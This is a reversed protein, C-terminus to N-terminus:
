SINLAFVFFSTEKKASVSFNEQAFRFIDGIKDMHLELKRLYPRLGSLFVITRVLRGPLHHLSAFGRSFAAHYGWGQLPPLTSQRGKPALTVAM